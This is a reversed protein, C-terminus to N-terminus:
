ADCAHVQGSARGMTALDVAADGRASIDALISEVKARVNADDVERLANSKATKLHRIM